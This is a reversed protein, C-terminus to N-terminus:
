LSKPPRTGITAYDGNLTKMVKGLGAHSYDKENWQDKHYKVREDLGEGDAETAKELSLTVFHNVEFTKHLVRPTWARKMKFVLEAPRNGSPETSSVVEVGLTKSSAMVAPIGYWQGAIKYRTDCFSWVDDYIATKAYVRCDAEGTSEAEHTASGSYLRLVSDLISQRTPSISISKTPEPNYDENTPANIASAPRASQDTDPQEAKQRDRIEYTQPNSPDPTKSALDRLEAASTM